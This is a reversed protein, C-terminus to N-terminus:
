ASTATSSTRSRGAADRGPGHGPDAAAQAAQDGLDGRQRPRRQGGARRRDQQQGEAADARLDDAGEPQGLRARVSRRGRDLRGVDFQPNIVGDYGNKFLTANNDTPSGNLVAVARSPRARRPLERPGRGPAQRGGRQRVLRLLRLRGQADPPRLRHGQRGPVQRQRRDGRRLGLRPEGAAAGQRRQHDGARGAAAADVQRGRREPDGVRHRRRRVGGEPVAPRGDGLSRVVELGAAARRGQRSAEGGGGGGDAGRQRRQRRRRLRRLVLVGAAAMVAAFDMCRSRM